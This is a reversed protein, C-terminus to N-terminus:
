TGSTARTAHLACTARRAAGDAQVDASAIAKWRVRRATKPTRARRRRPMTGHACPPDHSALANPCQARSDDAPAAEAAAFALALAVFLPM